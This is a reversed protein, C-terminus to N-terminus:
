WTRVVGGISPKIGITGFESCDPMDANYVYALAMGEEIDERDQEWEEEYSSVYLLSYLVGINTFSKIVHYVLADENKRNFEEVIKQDKEELWYLYGAGESLSLIDDNEFDKIPNDLMKLMKMRKIAEAKQKQKM